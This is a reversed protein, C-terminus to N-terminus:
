FFLGGSLLSGGMSFLGGMMAQQAQLQSQYNKQELDATRYVYDGVPTNAVTGAKFPSFQPMQVQNGSMLASIENLPQNRVAMQEQLARERATQTDEYQQQAMGFNTTANARELDSLRSQEQGGALVVQMRADTAARQYEDMARNYADSGEMVGQNSLQTRRADAAQQLQPNLRAYLADEVRQRDASYDNTGVTQATPLQGIAPLNDLNIPESLTGSLRSLQQAALDNMGQSLGVQQNYIAQQEPSLTVTRLWTPIDRTTSGTVNGQSDYTPENLQYTGNQTYRVSGIPSNENANGSVTNAISTSVNTNTQAAATKYPDPPTPPDPADM